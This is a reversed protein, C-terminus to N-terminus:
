LKKSVFRLIDATNEGFAGRGNAMQPFWITQGTTNTEVLVIGGKEDVTLDWSIVGLQPANLHMKEAAAILEPVFDLEYGKFTVGTDPHVSVREGFESYAEAEMIGEDSVGIFVGGAHANDLRNGGRGLRLAVPFHYVAGNWLYTVIRFTNISNPYLAALKPHPKLLEQIQFTNKSNGKLFEDILEGLMKGSVSDKGDKLSVFKVGRGSATDQTLKIVADGIDSMKEIFEERSYVNKGADFFVGGGYTGIVAPTKVNKVGDCFLPLLLKDDLVYSYKRPNMMLEFKSSFLIEPFYSADFRGTFSQYLRHWDHPMTKGYNEKFLADIQSEQEPTLTVTDILRQRREDRVKRKEWRAQRWGYNKLYLRDLIIRGKKYINM